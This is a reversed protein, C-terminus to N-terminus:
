AGTQEAKRERKVRGIKEMTDKWKAGGDEGGCVESVLDGVTGCCPCFVGGELASWTRGCDHAMGSDQVIGM